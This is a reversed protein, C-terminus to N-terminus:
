ALDLLCTWSCRRNPTAIGHYWWIQGMLLDIPLCVAAAVLERSVFTNAEIMRLQQTMIFDPDVGQYAPTRVSCHDIM